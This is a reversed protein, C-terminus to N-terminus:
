AKHRQKGTQKDKLKTLRKNEKGMFKLIEPVPVCSERTALILECEEDSLQTTLTKKILRDIRNRDFGSIDAATRYLGATKNDFFTRGYLNIRNERGDKIFEVFDDMFFRIEVTLLFITGRDDSICIAEVRNNKQQLLLLITLKNCYALLLELWAFPQLMYKLGKITLKIFGGPLFPYDTKDLAFEPNIGLRPCISSFREQSVAKLGGSARSISSQKVGLLGSLATQKLGQLSAMNIIFTRKDM